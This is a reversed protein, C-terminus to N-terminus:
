TLLIIWIHHCPYVQELVHPGSVTLQGELLGQQSETILTILRLGEAFIRRCRMVSNQLRRSVLCNIGQVALEPEKNMCICWFIQALLHHYSILLYQESVSFVSNFLIKAEFSSQSPLCACIYNSLLPLRTIKNKETKRKKWKMYTKSEFAGIRLSIFYWHGNKAWGGEGWILAFCPHFSWQVLLCWPHHTDFITRGRCTHTWVALWTEQATFHAVLM